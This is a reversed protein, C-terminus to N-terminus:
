DPDTLQIAGGAAPPPDAPGEAGGTGEDHADGTPQSDGDSPTDAPPQADDGEVKVGISRLFEKYNGMTIFPPQAVGAPLLMPVEAILKIELTGAPLRPDLKPAISVVQMVMDVSPRYLVADGPLIPRGFRDKILVSRDGAAIKQRLENQAQVVRLGQARKNAEEARGM